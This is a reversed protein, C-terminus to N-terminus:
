WTHQSSRRVVLHGSIVVQRAAAEPNAARWLMLEVAASGIEAVPQHLTTLPVRLLKAYRVDDFGVIRFQSPIAVSMSDLTHMLSAATEDNGCVLDTVGNELLEKRVWDADDPEGSHIWEARPSINRDLLATKYGQQRLSITYASYPRALFDVRSAGGELLHETVVYGGRFNDIGVLDYASRGPFPVYDTDILVVPIQAEKFLAIVIENIERAKSSFEVPAFFVGSVGSSVYRKAVSVVSPGLDEGTLESGSWLLSFDNAEALTAIQGTIPEFIERKGLGSILLGFLRHTNEPPEEELVYSGSGARRKILQEETLARLARTVTPRSVNFSEALEAESPLREGTQYHGEEILRKLEGYIHKYKFQSRDKM